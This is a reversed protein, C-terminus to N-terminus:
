NRPPYHASVSFTGVRMTPNLTYVLLISKESIVHVLPLAGVGEGPSGRTGLQSLNKSYHLTRRTHFRKVKKNPADMAQVTFAHM